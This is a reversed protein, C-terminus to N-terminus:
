MAELHGIAVLLWKYLLRWLLAKESNGPYHWSPWMMAGACWFVMDLRPLM